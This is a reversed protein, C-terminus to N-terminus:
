EVRQVELVPGALVIAGGKGVLTSVAIALDVVEITDFERRLQSITARAEPQEGLWEWVATDLPLAEGDRIVDMVTM